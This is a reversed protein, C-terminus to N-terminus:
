RSSDQPRSQQSTLARSTFFTGPRGFVSLSSATQSALSVSRPMSRAENTGGLGIRFRRSRVRRLVTNVRSRVRVLCRTSFSRTTHRTHSIPHRLRHHGPRQLLPGLGYEM